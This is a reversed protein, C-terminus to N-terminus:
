SIFFARGTVIRHGPSLDKHLMLWQLIQDRNRITHHSHVLDHGANILAALKDQNRFLYDVKDLLDSATAFVCNKMDVFGAAKLAASERRYDFGGRM